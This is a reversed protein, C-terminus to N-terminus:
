STKSNTTYTANKESIIGITPRWQHNGMSPYWSEHNRNKDKIIATTSYQISQNMDHNRIGASPNTFTLFASPFSNIRPVTVLWVMVRVTHQKHYIHIIDGKGVIHYGSSGFSWELGFFIWGVLWGIPKLLGLKSACQKFRTPKKKLGAQQWKWIKMTIMPFPADKWWLFRFFNSNWSKLECTWTMKVLDNPLSRIMWAMGEWFSLVCAMLTATIFHFTALYRTRRHTKKAAWVM